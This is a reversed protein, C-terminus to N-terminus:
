KRASAVIALGIGVVILVVMGYFLASFGPSLQDIVPGLAQALVIIIFIGFVGAIASAILEGIEALLVSM